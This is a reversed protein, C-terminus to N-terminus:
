LGKIGKYVTYLGFFLMLFLGWQYLWRKCTLIQSFVGVLAMPIMTCLGFIFMVLIGQWVGGSALAVLAFYYVIGCPLFGNLFGLFYFNRYRTDQYFIKFLKGFVGNPHMSPEFLSLFKPAFIMLIAILSVLIGVILLTLNKIWSSIEFIIGIGGCLAGILCYASLRGLNYLTNSLFASKGSSSIKVNIGLAIGGCM